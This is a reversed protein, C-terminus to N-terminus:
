IIKKRIFICPGKEKCLFSTRRTFSCDFYPVDVNEEVSCLFIDQLTAPHFLLAANCPDLFDTLCGRQQRSEENGQSRRNVNNYLISGDHGKSRQSFISYLISGDHGQRQSVISNLISGDHGQSRQSVICVTCYEEMMARHGRASLVM